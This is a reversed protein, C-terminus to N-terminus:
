RVRMEFEDTSFAAGMKRAPVFYFLFLAHGSLSILLFFYGVLPSFFSCITNTISMVFSQPRICEFTHFFGTGNASFIAKNVKDVKTQDCNCSCDKFFNENQTIPTTSVLSMNFTYNFTNFANFTPGNQAANEKCKLWFGGDVVREAVLYPIVKQFSAPFPGFADANPTCNFYFSVDPDRILEALIKMPDRCLDAVGQSGFLLALGIILCIFALFGGFGHLFFRGGIKGLISIWMLAGIGLFLSTITMQLISLYYEFMDLNSQLSDQATADLADTFISLIKVLEPNIYENITANTIEYFKTEECTTLATGACDKFPNAALELLATQVNAISGITTDKFALAANIRTRLLASTDTMSYSYCALVMTLATILAFLRTFEHVNKQKRMCVYVLSLCFVVVLSGAIPAFNTELVNVIYNSETWEHGTRFTSSM